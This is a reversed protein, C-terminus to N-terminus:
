MSNDLFEVINDTDKPSFWVIDDYRKFWTIQRKAFRRTNVKIKEIATQFDWDGDLYKFLEKYGVTNLANVNRYKIVSKVEDLWEEELMSYLRREIRENLQKRDMELGIKIIKFPRKAPKGKRLSTYTKGTQLCVELARLIRKPNNIDVQKYYEPDLNLLKEQIAKLGENEFLSKLSERLNLDIDPLRDIGKCVADIYLGSGGVMIMINNNKFYNKLLSLVEMEFMSVNYYNEISINGIFHHKVGDMEEFKPAATGIPIEKYFQRSDASIIDCNYKKALEISVSTKGVATPGQIVILTAPKKSEM